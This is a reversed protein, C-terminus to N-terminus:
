NAPWLARLVRQALHRERGWRGPRSAAQRRLKKPRRRAIAERRLDRDHQDALLHTM